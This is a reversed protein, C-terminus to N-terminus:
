ALAAVQRKVADLVREPVIRDMCHKDCESVFTCECPPVPELIEGRNYLEFERPNFINNFLVLRKKLGIALHMAMTVATVMVDIEGVLRVFQRLPFHGLYTAGSACAIRQNKEHEIPGGLLLVTFGADRLRWALDNWHQEPWLRTKWRPACGTNLGILPRDKPIGDPVSQELCPDLVYEEGIFEYGCIRFIEQPYSLTNARNLKDDIGTLLKAHAAEDLGAPRGGELTFGSRMLANCRAALAGAPRDKDLLILWDWPTGEIILGGDYGWRLVEDAGMPDVARPPVVEPTETLWTIWAHPRESRIRRLLPTTRIVDGAAALKIILIRQDVRDYHSCGDCIVGERKHLKCPIDGRFHRCDRHVLYSM